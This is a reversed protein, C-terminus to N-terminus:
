GHRGGRVSLVSMGARDHIVLMGGRTAVFAGERRSRYVTAPRELTELVLALSYGREEMGERARPTFSWACGPLEPTSLPGRAGTPPPLPTPATLEGQEHRTPPDTAPTRALLRM